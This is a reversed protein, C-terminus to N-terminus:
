AHQVEQEADAVLACWDEFQTDQRDALASCIRCWAGTVVPSVGHTPCLDVPPLVVGPLYQACFVDLPTKEAQPEQWEQSFPTYKPM